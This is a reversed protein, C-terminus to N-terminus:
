VRAQGAYGDIKKLLLHIAPDLGAMAVFVRPSAHYERVMTRKITIPVARFEM